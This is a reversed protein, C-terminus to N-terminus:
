MMDFVYRGVYGSPELHKGSFGPTLRVESVSDTGSGM